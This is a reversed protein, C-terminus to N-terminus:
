REAAKSCSYCLVRGYKSKSYSAKKDATFGPSDKLEAGCEECGIGIGAPLPSPIAKPAFTVGDEPKEDGGLEDAFNADLNLADGLARAKARTEAMRPIHAIVMPNVNKPNADGIGSWETGDAFTAVAHAVYHNAAVDCLSEVLGTRFGILGVSHAYNLADRWKYVTIKTGKGVTTKPIERGERKYRPENRSPSRDTDVM